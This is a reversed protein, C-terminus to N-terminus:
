QGARPSLPCSNVEVQEKVGEKRGREEWGRRPSGTLLEQTGSPPTVSPLNLRTLVVVGCGGWGAQRQGPEGQSRACVWLHHCLDWSFSCDQGTAEKRGQGGVAQPCKRQCVDLENALTQEEQVTRGRFILVLQVCQKLFWSFYVKCDRSHDVLGLAAGRLHAPTRPGRPNPSVM